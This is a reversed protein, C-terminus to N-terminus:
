IKQKSPGYFSLSRAMDLREQMWKSYGNKAVDRKLMSEYSDPEETVKIKKWDRKLILDLYNFEHSM